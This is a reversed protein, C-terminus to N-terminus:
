AKWLEQMTQVFRLDMEPLRGKETLYGGIMM